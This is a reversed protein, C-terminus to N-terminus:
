PIECFLLATIEVEYISKQFKIQWGFQDIHNIYLIKNYIM